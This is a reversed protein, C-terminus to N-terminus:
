VDKTKKFIPTRTKGALVKGCLTNEFIPFLTKM